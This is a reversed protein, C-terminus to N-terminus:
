GRGSTTWLPSEKGSPLAQWHRGCVRLWMDAGYPKGPTSFEKWVTATFYTSLRLKPTITPKWREESDGSCELPCKCLSFWTNRGLGQSSSIGQSVSSCPAKGGETDDHGGDWPRPCRHSDLHLWGLRAGVTTKGTGKGAEWKKAWGTCRQGLSWTHRGRQEHRPPPSRVGQM